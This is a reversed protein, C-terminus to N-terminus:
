QPKLRPGHRSENFSPRRGVKQPHPRARAALHRRRRVVRQERQLPTTQARELRLLQLDPNSEGERAAEVLERIPVERGDALTVLADGTLCKGCGNPGVIATIGNGTFVLETYDAFSKFGTIELRQLKFM